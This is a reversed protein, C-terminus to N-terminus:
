LEEGALFRQFMWLAQAPKNTPVMHGAGRITAYSLGAYQVVYGAVQTVHCECINTTAGTVVQQGLATHQPRRVQDDVM